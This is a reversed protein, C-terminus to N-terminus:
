EAKEHNDKTYLSLLFSQASMSLNNDFMNMIDEFSKEVSIERLTKKYFSPIEATDFVHRTLESINEGFTEIGIPRATTTDGDRDFIVVRKGPIEQIVIPSHTAIVAYSEYRELIRNFANFLSAIANPHLHTEPEDFMIISNPEIWAILATITHTLIAQGSSLKAMEKENDLSSDLEELIDKEIDVAADGL